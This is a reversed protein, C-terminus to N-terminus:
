KRKWGDKDREPFSVKCTGPDIGEIRVAGTADLTGSVEQGNPLTVTFPEGRMPTGDEDALDLALWSPKERDVVIVPPGAARAPPAAPPAKPPEAAKCPACGGMAAAQDARITAV